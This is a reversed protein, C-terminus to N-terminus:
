SFIIIRHAYILDLNENILKSERDPIPLLQHCYQHFSFSFDAASSQTKQTQYEFFTLLSIIFSLLLTDLVLSIHANFSLIILYVLSTFKLFEKSRFKSRDQAFFVELFTVASIFKAAHIKHNSWNEIDLNLLNIKTFIPLTYFTISIILQLILKYKQTM